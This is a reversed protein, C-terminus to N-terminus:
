PRAAPSKSLGVVITGGQAQFRKMAEIINGQEDATIPRVRLPRRDADEARGQWWLGPDVAQRDPDPGGHKPRRGEVTSSGARRDDGARSRGPSKGCALPDRSIRRSEQDKIKGHQCLGGVGRYRERAPTRGGD